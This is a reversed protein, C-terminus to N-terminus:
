SVDTLWHNSVKVVKRNLNEFALLADRVDYYEILVCSGVDDLM